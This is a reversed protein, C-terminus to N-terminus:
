TWPQSAAAATATAALMAQVCSGDHVSIRPQAAVDVATLRPNHALPSTAPLAVHLPEHALPIGTLRDSPWPQTSDLRHALVLDARRCGM